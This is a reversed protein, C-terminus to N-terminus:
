AIETISLEYVVIGVMEGDDNEEISSSTVQGDHWYYTGSVTRSQEQTLPYELKDMRRSLAETIQEKTGNAKMYQTFNYTYTRTNAGSMSSILTSSDFEVVIGENGTYDDQSMFIGGPLDTLVKKIQDFTTKIKTSYAM